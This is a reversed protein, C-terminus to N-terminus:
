GENRGMVSQDWVPKAVSSMRLDEQTVFADLERGDGASGVRPREWDCSSRRTAARAFGAHRTWGILVM